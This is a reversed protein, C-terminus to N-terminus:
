NEEFAFSYVGGSPNASSFRVYAVSGNQAAINNDVGPGTVWSYDVQGNKYIPLPRQNHDLYEVVTLQPPDYCISGPDNIPVVTYRGPQIEVMKVNSTSVGEDNLAHSIGTKLMIGGYIIGGVIALLIGFIVMHGIMEKISKRFTSQTGCATSSGCVKGIVICLVIFGITGFGWWLYKSEISPFNGFNFNVSPFSVFKYICIIAIIILGVAILINSTKKM